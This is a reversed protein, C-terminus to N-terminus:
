YLHSSLVPSKKICTVEHAPKVTTVKGDVVAVEICRYKVENTCNLQKFLKKSTGGEGMQKTPSGHKIVRKTDIKKNFHM